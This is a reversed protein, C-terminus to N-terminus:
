TTPAASESRTARWEPALLSYVVLDEFHDNLWASQRITGEQTFGLREPIARSRRNGRACRIEIRHLGLVTFAYEVVARCARTMIGLGQYPAGLWYGIETRRNDRDIYHLGIVGAIQGRYWIGAQFGKGEAFQRLAQEIFARTHEISTNGAVWPLWQRLHERNQETLRFVEGAHRAQLPRLEIEGDVRWTFM